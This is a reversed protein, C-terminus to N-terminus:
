TKEEKEAILFTMQQMTIFNDGKGTNHCLERKEDALAPPILLSTRNSIKKGVGKKGYFLVRENVMLAIVNGCCQGLDLVMKHGFM